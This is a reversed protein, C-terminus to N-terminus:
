LDLFSNYLFIKKQEFDDSFHELFSKKPPDMKSSPLPPRCLREPRQGPGNKLLPLVQTATLDFYGMMKIGLKEVFGM